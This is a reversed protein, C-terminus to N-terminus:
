FPAAVVLVVGGEVPIVPTPTYILLRAARGPVARARAQCPGFLCPVVLGVPRCLGVHRALPGPV